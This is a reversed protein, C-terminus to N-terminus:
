KAAPKWANILRDAVDPQVLQTSTKLLKRTHKAKKALNAFTAWPLTAGRGSPEEYYLRTWARAKQVLLLPVPRCVTVAGKIPRWVVIIQDGRRGERVIKGSGIMRIWDLRDKAMSLDSAAKDIMAQEDAPPDDPLERASVIWTRNGLKGVRATRRGRTSPGGGGRRVVKIKRLDLLEQRTLAPEVDAVVKELFAKANAVAVADNTVYASELWKKSHASMNGSGIVAYNGLVLVKAHLNECSYIDVGKRQLALLLRASTSGNAIQIRAANAILRDGRRFGVLDRTVFAIAAEKRRASKAIRAVETWYDDAIVRKTPM